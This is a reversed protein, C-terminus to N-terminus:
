GRGAAVTLAARIVATNSTSKPLQLRERVAELDRGMQAYQGESLTLLVEIADPRPPRMKDAGEAM